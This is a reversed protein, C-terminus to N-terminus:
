LNLLEKLQLGTGVCLCVLEHLNMMINYLCGWQMTGFIHLDGVDVMTEPPHTTRNPLDGLIECGWPVMTKYPSKCMNTVM